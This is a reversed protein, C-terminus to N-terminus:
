RIIQIFQRIESLNLWQFEPRAAIIVEENGIDCVRQETKEYAEVAQELVRELQKLKGEEEKLISQVKLLEEAIVEDKWEIVFYRYNDEIEAQINRLISVQRRLEACSQKIQPLEISFMREEEQRDMYYKMQKIMIVIDSLCGKKRVM